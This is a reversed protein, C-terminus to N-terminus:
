SALAGRIQRDLEADTMPGLVRHVIRGRRDVFFTTPTYSVGYRVAIDGVGDFAIPYTVGHRKVFTRAPGRFDLVDIGVVAVRKGAWRTSASQLQPMEKKCPECDSAWFNVVVAKGRLAALTVRGDGSLRSLSFAPADVIKGRVIAKATEDQHALRWALIAALALVGAVAAVRIARV